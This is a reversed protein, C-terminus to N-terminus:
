SKSSSVTDNRRWRGWCQPWVLTFSGAVDTLDTHTTAPEYWLGVSAGCNYCIITERPWDPKQQPLLFFRSRDKCKPCLPYWMPRWHFHRYIVSGLVLYIIAGLALGLFLGLRPSPAFGLWNMLVDLLTPGLALLLIAIFLDRVTFKM